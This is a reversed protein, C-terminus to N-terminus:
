CASLRRTSTGCRTRGRREFASNRSARTYASDRGAGASSGDLNYWTSPSAWVKELRQALVALTGTPVHRYEIATVMDKITRIEAPTLRHPTTHPCSSQDDLM